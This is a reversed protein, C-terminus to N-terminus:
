ERMYTKRETHGVRKQITLGLLALIKDGNWRCSKSYHRFVSTSSIHQQFHSHTSLQTLLLTFVLVLGGAKWTQPGGGTGHWAAIKVLKITRKSNPLHKADKLECSTGAGLSLPFLWLPVPLFSPMQIFWSAQPWGWLYHSHFMWDDLLM